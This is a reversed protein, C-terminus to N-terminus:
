NDFDKLTPIILEQGLQIDEASPLANANLIEEVTTHYLKALSSLYDGAKIVVIEGRDLILDTAPLVRRYLRYSTRYWEIEAYREAENLYYARDLDEVDLISHLNIMEVAENYNNVAIAYNSLTGMTEAIKVKAFYLQLISDNTEAAIAAAKQFDNLASEVEGTASYLDGRAMYSEYLTQLATGNAYNPDVSYVYELNTIVPFIEGRDFDIQSQLYANALNLERLVDPDDPKLLLAKNLFSNANELAQLSAEQGFIANKAEAVYYQFLREKFQERVRTQEVILAEDRPRLVLVKRFYTDALSLAEPSDNEGELIETGINMYSRILRQEVLEKRYEPAIARITEYQSSALEWNGKDYAAEAQDLLDLLYLDGEIDQIKLSVDLYNPQQEYIAEFEELAKIPDGDELLAVAEEYQTKLAQMGEAENILEDLGEYDPDDNAIEHLLVLASDPYNAQLYSQADRFKLRTEFSTIDSLLGERIGTWQGRIWDDFTKVGWFIFVLTLALLALRVGLRLVSRTRDVRSDKIEDEDLQSRLFMEQRLADIEIVFPYDKKVEDLATLGEDWRGNQFDKMAAQFKPEKLYQVKTEITM